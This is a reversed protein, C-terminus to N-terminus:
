GGQNTKHRPASVPGPSNKKQIKQLPNGLTYELVSGPIVIADRAKCAQGWGKKKNGWFYSNNLNFAQGQFKVQVFWKMRMPTFFFCVTSQQGGLWVSRNDLREAASEGEKFAMLMNLAKDRLNSTKITSHISSSQAAQNPPRRNPKPQTFIHQESNTQPRLTTSFSLSLISASLMLCEGNGCNKKLKKKDKQRKM